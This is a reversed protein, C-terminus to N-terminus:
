KLRIAAVEGGELLLAANYVADGRRWPAGVLLAPGGDATAAALASVATDIHDQFAQKLVLDEPPYGALVLEGCAVLDAEGGEARAALVRGVNGDIDGVIPNIQALAVVLSDTM